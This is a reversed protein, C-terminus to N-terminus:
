AGKRQHYPRLRSFIGEGPAYSSEVSGERDSPLSDYAAIADRFRQVLAEFDYLGNGDVELGALRLPFSVPPDSPGMLSMSRLQRTSQYVLDLSAFSKGDSSRRYKRVVLKCGIPTKREITLPLSYEESGLAALVSGINSDHGCLFTFRRGEAELESLMEGLLPHAVNIAVAPATFLIDQYWDKVESIKVWDDEDLENGFAAAKPDPEEYYQLILADAASCATKLSGGMAPEKLPELMIRTDDTRFGPFEGRRCLPSEGTDLVTSLLDYNEALRQGLMEISGGGMHAIQELAAAEFLPSTFTLRPNFVPDMRGIECHHEVVTNAVPLFGAAFYKATAVTRQMSNAYFRVEGEAPVYNEPFFGEGVLETRFYQGMMTELAGGRLSLEGPASSWDFWKHPTIQELVSGKGSLPSRINHRSLVVVRELVYGEGPSNMGEHPPETGMSPQITLLLLLAAQLMCASILTTPHATRNM